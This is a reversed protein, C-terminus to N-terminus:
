SQGNTKEKTKEACAACSARHAEVEQIFKEQAQKLQATERNLKDQVNRLALDLIKNKTELEEAQDHVEVAAKYRAEAEAKAAAVDDKEQQAVLLKAKADEAEQKAKEAVARAEGERARNVTIESLIANLEDKTQDIRAQAQRIQNLIETNKEQERIALAEANATTRTKEEIELRQKKLQEKDASIKVNDNFLENKKEQNLRELEVKNSEIAKVESTLQDKTTALNSVEVKLDDRSKELALDAETKASTVASKKAELEKKADEILRKVELLATEHTLLNDRVARIKGQYTEIADVERDSLMQTRISPLPESTETTM